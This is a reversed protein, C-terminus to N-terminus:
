DYNSYGIGADSTSFWGVFDTFTWTELNCHGHKKILRQYTTDNETIQEFRSLMSEYHVDNFQNSVNWKEPTKQTMVRWQYLFAKVYEVFGDFTLNEVKYIIKGDNDILSKIGKETFIKKNEQFKKM